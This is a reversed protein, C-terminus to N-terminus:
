RGAAVGGRVPVVVARQGIGVCSPCADSTMGHHLDRRWIVRQGWCSGCPEWVIDTAAASRPHRDM